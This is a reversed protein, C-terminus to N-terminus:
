KKPSIITNPDVEVVEGDKSMVVPTNKQKKLELMNIYAKELGETLKGELDKLQEKSWDGIWCL